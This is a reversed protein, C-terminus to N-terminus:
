DINELFVTKLYETEPMTLLIPHDPSQSGFHIIRFNRKTDKSCERLLDLFMEKQMHHSCSSTVLLGGRSLIRMARQNIEKYGKIGDKIKSKSKIFAPPDLIICDFKEHNDYCNKLFDFVDKKIAHVPRHNLQSNKNILQIAKESSDVCYIEGGFVRSASFAWGGSYSFCDLLKKYSKNILVERLYIRNIKQDLFFGTKQGTILDVYYKIGEESIIQINEYSGYDVKVYQDLGEFTRFNSDNKLIIAKPNLIELLVEKIIPYLKEIGATLTQVVLYNKYKDIILGPLFDSESFFLRCADKYFYGIHKRYDIARKLIKKLFDKNIETEEFTVIRIAILSKPNIYGICYFKNNSLYVKVLQGPEFDALKGDIENSFIWLYGPKKRFNKNLKIKTM